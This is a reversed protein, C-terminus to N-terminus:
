CLDVVRQYNHALFETTYRKGVPSLLGEPVRAIYHSFREFSIAKLRYQWAQFSAPRLSAGVALAELPSLTRSGDAAWFASQARNAYTTVTAKSSGDLREQRTKDNLERGLSSAHDYSPALRAFHDDGEQRLEVGWNEHHRDTNGILADLLLYGIFTDFADLTPAVPNRNAAPLFVKLADFVAEVTHRKAHYREERPYTNDVVWLLDNGHVLSSRIVDGTTSRHHLFDWSLTGRTANLRALEIRPCPVGLQQAIHYAVKESWDEGTDLRAEKWLARRGARGRVVWFKPKSGMVEDATTRDLYGLRLEIIPFYADM